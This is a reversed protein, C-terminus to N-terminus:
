KLNKILPCDLQPETLQPYLAEGLKESGKGRLGAIRVVLEIKNKVKFKRFINTLHYKVVSESLGFKIAIDKTKHGQIVERIIPKEYESLLDISTMTTKIEERNFYIPHSKVLM